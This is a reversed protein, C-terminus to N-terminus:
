ANVGPIIPFDTLVLTISAEIVGAVPIAFKFDKFFGSVYWTPSGTFPFVLRFDIPVGASNEDRGRDFFLKLLANHQTSGVIFFLKFPIDGADLLTIIKQRWPAGTSHSTVDVVTSTFSPGSYDSVNAVTNWVDPSPNVNYQLLTNIAPQAAQLSM